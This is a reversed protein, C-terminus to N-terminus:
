AHKHARRRSRTKRARKGGHEREAQLNKEIEAAIDTTAVLTLTKFSVIRPEVSM